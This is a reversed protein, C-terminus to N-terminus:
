VAAEELSRVGAPHFTIEVESEAGDYEVKRVLLRVLRAREKPSMAEWVGDFTSMADDVEAKAIREADLDDLERRARAVADQAERSRGHLAALEGARAPDLAAARIEREVKALGAKAAELRAEAEGASQERRARARELTASLVAPDQAVVRVRQMVFDEIQQAPLAGSPCTGRGHRVAGCCQYYRYAKGGPRVTFTHGMAAACPRCFVLGKLLANHKNRCESGGDRGNQRLQRQVRDYVDLQVIGPQEGAHEQGHHRVRGVYLPNTLLHHIRGKEFPSGGVVRGKRTTWRKTTWGRRNAEEATRLLSQTELYIEFLARVQRAEEENVTLRASKFDLDFGLVPRGGAWKGKRRAAAIKDRTRESIIEREFQAFSLLVNLMLRGMSQATNFQQTVSVFSIKHREFTEMMRAFDLLSRSLRDVKYVVVADIKGAEIDLMLQRLGPREVNGGSYGGDDYRDPLCVWGDHKQSAIYAEGAERQADLSNFEQELGEESSKRTYVACRM